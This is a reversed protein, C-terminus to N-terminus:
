LKPDPSSTLRGKTVPVPSYRQLWPASTESTWRAKHPTRSPCISCARRGSPTSPRSSIKIFHAVPTLLFAKEVGQLAADLTEPQDFDGVALEIDPGELHAAEAPNRVFARVRQGMATLQRVLEKGNNGTAGTILIM